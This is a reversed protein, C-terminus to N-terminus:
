TPPHSPRYPSLLGGASALNRAQRAQDYGVEGPVSVHGAIAAQLTETTRHTIAVQTNMAKKGGRYGGATLDSVPM